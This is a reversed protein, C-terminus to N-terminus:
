VAMQGASVNEVQSGAAMKKMNMRYFWVFIGIGIASMVFYAPLTYSVQGADGTRFLLSSWTYSELQAATTQSLSVTIANHTFHYCMAPWISGAQFSIFGIITGTFFAIISQQLIGHTAGFFLSAILIAAWRDGAQRLGNMIFGRFAIEESIAPLLAFLLLISVFGPAGAFIQEMMSQLEGSTQMPYVRLVLEGFGSVIPHLCIAMLIALPISVLKTRAFGLSRIPHTTLVIAM